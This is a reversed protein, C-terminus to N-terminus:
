HNFSKLFIGDPIIARYFIIDLCANRAPQQRQSSFGGSSRAFPESTIINAVSTTKNSFLTFILNLLEITFPLDFLLLYFFAEIEVRRQLPLPPKRGERTSLPLPLPSLRFTQICIRAPQRRYKM